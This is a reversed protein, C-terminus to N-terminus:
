QFNRTKFTDTLAIDRFTGQLTGGMIDQRLQELACGDSNTDELRRFTFRFYNRAFCAHAKGSQNVLNIMDATTATAQNDGFVVQPHTSTDIPIQTKVNGNADFLPETTRLRGLADFNETAFGLPNIYPAHCLACSSGQQETISEVAQRTDQNSTDIPTNAANMPPDALDDCLVFKRIYVGKMIPRTTVMGTTLFAARTLFGPRVGAPLSPPAGSGSWTSSGYIAALEATKPFALDTTLLDSFSGGSTFTFYNAMDVAENQMAAGLGSSPLNNGAFTKFTANTNRADLAGLKHIESQFLKFYDFFFEQLTAQARPDAMLRDLQALYVDPKSLLSGDAATALLADDPMTQLFQYSLRAAVEYATLAYTNPKGAVQADGHEVVYLFQPATLFGGIVDAFAAPDIANSSGYFGRYFTVEDSTLPRRLARAGFSTIFNTICAADNSTDTDTACSGVVTGLRQKTGTLQAGVAVAVTYTARIHGDQVEQNMRLYTGFKDKPTTAREEPPYSALATTVDTSALVAMTDSESGKLAVKIIDHLTNNYQAQSLRPMAVAGPEVATNCSFALTQAATGAGGSGVTGAGGVGTVGGNNGNGNPSGSGNGTGDSVQGGIKGACGAASALALILFASRTPASRTSFSCHKMM